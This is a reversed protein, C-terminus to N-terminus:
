NDLSVRACFFACVCKLNVSGFLYRNQAEGIFVFVREKPLSLFVIEKSRFDFKLFPKLEMLVEKRRVHSPSCKLEVNQFSSYFAARFLSAVTDATCEAAGVIAM